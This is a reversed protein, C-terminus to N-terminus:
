SSRRFAAVGLGLLVGLFLVENGLNWAKVKELLSPHQILDTSPVLKHTESLLPELVTPKTPDEGRKLAEAELKHFTELWERGNARVRLFDAQTPIEDYGAQEWHSEISELAARIEKRAPHKKELSYQYFWWALNLERECVCLDALARYLEPGEIGGFRLMGVIGKRAKELDFERLEPSKNGKKDPDYNPQLREASTSAIGGYDIRIAYNSYTLFNHESWLKPNEKAAKLYRILDVQFQERGFHAEPNLTLAKELEELAEDFRGAHALVTGLNAHYRYQHESDPAKELLERKADLVQLASEHEQIKEYAVALDDYQDCTIEQQSLKPNLQRIRTRYLVDSHRYWRDSVVSELAPLGRLEDDITDTDWICALLLFSLLSTMQLNKHYFGKM